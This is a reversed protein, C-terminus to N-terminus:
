KQINLIINKQIAQHLDIFITNPNMKIIIINEYTKLHIFLKLKQNKLQREKIVKDWKPPHILFITIM